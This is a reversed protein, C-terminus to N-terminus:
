PTDEMSQSPNRYPPTLVTVPFADDVDPWNAVVGNVQVYWLIENNPSKFSHMTDPQLEILQFGNAIETPIETDVVVQSFFTSEENRTKTGERYSVKEKGILSINLKSIAGANGRFMWSIEFESGPYINCQSMALVPLPNFCKLTLLIAIADITLGFLLFVGPCIISGWRNPNFTFFCITGAIGTFLLGLVWAVIALTVRSVVPEMVLPEDPGGKEVPCTIYQLASGAM